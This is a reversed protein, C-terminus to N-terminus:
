FRYSLATRLAYGNRGNAPPVARVASSTRPTQTSHVIPGGAVTFQWARAPPAIRISPGVLLRAGGDAENPDWFGELDEGIAEVGLHLASSIRRALGVTTILDVADRGLSYPKELLANGDVRWAAFSRGAVVRGTLVNTGASEHRMGLGFAISTVTSRRHLVNYLLEAQESTRADRGDPSVGVRAHLTLGHGFSARMGLRQEPRNPETADFSREGIGLDYYVNVSPAASDLASVSFVFPQQAAAPPTAACLAIAIVMWFLRTALKM